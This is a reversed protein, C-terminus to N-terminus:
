GRSRGGNSGWSSRGRRRRPFPPRASSSARATAAVPTSPTSAGREARAAPRADTSAARDDISQHIRRGVLREIGVLLSHEARDCFSIASGQAGMRGTRGIRHVYTEPVEPLEYNIVHSVGDVDIGRAAIDTAVLVRMSGRRFAELARERAGQSKNGHIAAAGIGAKSLQESIRNAGRKTRAFVIAREVGDASLVRQLLARKGAAEVMYVTQRIADKAAEDPKVAVRVPNRLMSASLLVVPPPLTASFFLTQREKPIAALIRRVDPIFGMDLMRDAEDLVLIEVNGLKVLGQQMLDLLRGPTAVVVDPRKALAQEQSRQGVGGYIVACRIATGRGYADAREAIQAALERTPAVVLARIRGSSPRAALRQLLPLMFAATKGTGTQACALLDRGQLVHPIADNQVPTPMRYGESTVARVLTPALGLSLFSSPADTASLPSAFESSIHM